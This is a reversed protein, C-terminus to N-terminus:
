KWTLLDSWHESSWQEALSLLTPLEQEMISEYDENDTVVRAERLLGKPFALLLDWERKTIIKGDLLPKQTIKQTILYQEHIAQIKESLTTLFAEQDDVKLYEPLTLRVASTLDQTKETENSPQQTTSPLSTWIPQAPIEEREEEPEPEPEPESEEKEEIILLAQKTFTAYFSCLLLYHAVQYSVPNGQKAQYHHMRLIALRTVTLTWDTNGKRHAPAITPHLAITDTYLEVGTRQLLPQMAQALLICSEDKSCSFPASQNSPFMLMQFFGIRVRKKKEQRAHSSVGTASPATLGLFLGILLLLGLIYFM